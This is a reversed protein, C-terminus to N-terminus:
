LAHADSRDRAGATASGAAATVAEAKTEVKTEVGKMALQFDEVVDKIDVAVRDVNVVVTVPVDTETVTVGVVVAVAFTLVVTPIRVVVIKVDATVVIGVVDLACVTAGLTIM